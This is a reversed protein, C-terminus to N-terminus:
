KANFMGQQTMARKEDPKRRWFNMAWRHASPKAGHVNKCNFRIVNGPSLELVHTPADKAPNYGHTDRAQGFSGTVNLGVAEYDAYSADRHPEIGTAMAGSYTVLCFDFPWDILQELRRWIGDQVKFGPKEHQSTSLPPETRLWCRLRGSAYASVDPVLAPRIQGDLWATLERIQISPRREIM